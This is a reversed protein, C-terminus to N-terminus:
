GAIELKGDRVSAKIRNRMKRISFFRQIGAIEAPNLDPHWIEFILVVRPQNSENVAEHIFSDDFVTLRNEQWGTSQGGVSLRCKEPVIIPLHVALRINTLGFHRPIRAGPALVSFFVEPMFADAQALPAKGLVRETEPFHMCIDDQRTFRHLHISSWNLSGVLENGAADEFQQPGGSKRLYPQFKENPEGDTIFRLYEARISQSGSSVDHAWDFEADDYLPIRRIGPFALMRPKQLESEFQSGTGHLLMEFCAELREVSHGAHSERLECLIQDFEQAYFRANIQRAQQVRRFIDPDAGSLNRHTLLEPQITLVHALVERAQGSKEQQELIIGLLLWYFALGPKMEIAALLQKEAQEFDGDDLLTLALQARPEPNDPELLCLARLAERLGGANPSAMARKVRRRVQAVTEYESRHSQAGAM